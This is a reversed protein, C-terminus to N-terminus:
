QPQHRTLCATEFLSIQLLPIHLHPYYFALSEIGGFSSMVHMSGLTHVTCRSMGYEIIKPYNTIAIDLLYIM